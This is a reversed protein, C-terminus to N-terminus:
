KASYTDGLLLVQYSLWAQPMRGSLVSSVLKSSMEASLPLEVKGRLDQCLPIIKNWDEFTVILDLFTPKVRILKMDNKWFLHTTHFSSFLFNWLSFFWYSTASGHHHHHSNTDRCGGMPALLIKFTRRESEETLLPVDATQPKFEEVSYIKPGFLFVNVAFFVNSNM